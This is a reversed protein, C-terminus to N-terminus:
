KFTTLDLLYALLYTTEPSDTTKCDCCMLLLRQTYEFFGNYIEGQVFRSQTWFFSHKHMASEVKVSCFM